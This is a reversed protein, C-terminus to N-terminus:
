SIIERRTARVVRTGCLYDHLARAKPTFLCILFGLGLTGLTLGYGITQRFLVAGTGATEGKSSIIQLGTLMKGISKRCILPLLIVNVVSILSALFWLTADTVINLGGAFMQASLLGGVPLILFIIYDIMVAGCRLLFPATFDELTDQDTSRADLAAAM